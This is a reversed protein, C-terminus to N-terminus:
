LRREHPMAWGHSMESLPVADPHLRVPETQLAAYQTLLERVYALVAKRSLLRRALRNMREVMRRVSEDQSKAYRLTAMLNSLNRTIPLYHEYPRLLTHFFRHCRLRRPLRPPLRTVDAPHSGCPLCLEGGTYARRLGRTRGGPM